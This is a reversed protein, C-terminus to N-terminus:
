PAIRLAANLMDASFPKVLVGSIQLGISCAYLEAARAIAHAHGTILVIPTAPIRPALIEMLEFGDIDPLSLDLILHTFARLDPSALLAVGLPFVSICERRCDVMDLVLRAMDPDDEVIALRIDAACNKM